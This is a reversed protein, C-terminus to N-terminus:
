VLLMEKLSDYDSDSYKRMGIEMCARWLEKGGIKVTYYCLSVANLQFYGCSNTMKM